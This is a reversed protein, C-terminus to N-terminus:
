GELPGIRHAAMKEIVEVLSSHDLDVGGEAQRATMLEQTAATNPLPVGLERGAALAIALDKQHLRLRFGPRFDRRIM